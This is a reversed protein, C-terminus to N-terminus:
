KCKCWPSKKIEWLQATQYLDDIFLCLRKENFESFRFRFSQQPKGDCLVLVRHRQILDLGEIMASNRHPFSLATRADIKVSLNGSNCFLEPLAATKPPKDPIPAVCLSGSEAEAILPQSALALAILIL